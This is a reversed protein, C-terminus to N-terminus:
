LASDDSLERLFDEFPRSPEDARADLADADELDEVLAARIAENVLASINAGTEAAKLRLAQRLGPELYVTTRENESM